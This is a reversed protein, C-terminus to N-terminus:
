AGDRGDPEAMLRLREEIWVDDWRGSSVAERVSLLSYYLTRRISKTYNGQSGHIAGLNHILVDGAAARACAGGAWWRSDPSPVDPARGGHPRHTAPLFHVAGNSEDSNDLYFAITLVADGTTRTTWTPDRHVPIPIGVRPVKVVLSANYVVFPSGVVARGVLKLLPHRFLRLFEIGLEHIHLVRELVPEGGGSARQYVYRSQAAGYAAAYLVSDSAARLARLESGELVAPIHVYGQELLCQLEGDFRSGPPDWERLRREEVWAAIDRRLFVAEGESPQLDGAECADRIDREPVGSFRATDALTM